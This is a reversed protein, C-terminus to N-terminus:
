IQMGETSHVLDIKLVPFVINYYINGVNKKLLALAYINRTTDKM